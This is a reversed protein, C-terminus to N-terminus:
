KLLFLSYLDVFKYFVTYTFFFTVHKMISCRMTKKKDCFYFTLMSLITNKIKDEREAKELGKVMHLM